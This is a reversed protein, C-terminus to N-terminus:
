KKPEPATSQYLSFSKVHAIPYIQATNISADAQRDRIVYGRRCADDIAVSAASRTAFRLDFDPGDVLDIHVRWREDVPPPPATPPQLTTKASTKPKSM